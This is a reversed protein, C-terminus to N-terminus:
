HRYLSRQRSILYKIFWIGPFTLSKLLKDNPEPKVYDLIKWRIKEWMSYNLTCPPHLLHAPSVYYWSLYTNVRQRGSADRSLYHSKPMHGQWRRSFSVWRKDARDSINKLNMCNMRHEKWQLYTWWGEKKGGNPQRKSLLSHVGTGHWFWLLGLHGSQATLESIGHCRYVFHSLVASQQTLFRRCKVEVDKPKVLSVFSPHTRSARANELGSGHLKDGVRFCLWPPCLILPVELAWEPGSVSEGRELLGRGCDPFVKDLQPYYSWRNV